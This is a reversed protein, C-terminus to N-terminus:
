KIPNEIAVYPQDNQVLSNQQEEAVAADLSGALWLHM